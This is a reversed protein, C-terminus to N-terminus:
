TIGGGGRLNSFVILKEISLSIVNPTLIKSSVKIGLKLHSQPRWSNTIIESSKQSVLLKTINLDIMRLNICCVFM